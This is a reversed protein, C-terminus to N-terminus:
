YEGPSQLDPDPPPKLGRCLAHLHDQIEASRQRYSSVGTLDSEELVKGSEDRYVVTFEGPLAKEYIEAKCGDHEITGIPTDM